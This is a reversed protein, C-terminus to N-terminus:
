GCLRPRGAGRAAAYQLRQGVPLRFLHRGLRHGALLSGAGFAVYQHRLLCHGGGGGCLAWPIDIGKIFVFYITPLVSLLLAVAMTGAGIKHVSPTFEKHFEEHVADIDKVTNNIDSM